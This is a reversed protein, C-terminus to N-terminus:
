RYLEWYARIIRGRAYDPAGARTEAAEGLSWYAGPEEIPKLLADRLLGLGSDILMGRCLNEVVDANGGARVAVIPLGASM